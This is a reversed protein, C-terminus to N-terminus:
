KDDDNVDMNQVKIAASKYTDARWGKKTEEEYDLKNPM